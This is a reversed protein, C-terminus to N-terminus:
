KKKGITGKNRKLFVVDATGETPFNVIDGNFTIENVLQTKKSKM